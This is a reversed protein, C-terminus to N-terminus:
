TLTARLLSKVKFADNLVSENHPQTAWLKNAVSWALDDKTLSKMIFYRNTPTLNVPTSSSVPSDETAKIVPSEIEKEPLTPINPGATNVTTQSSSLVTSSSNNPTRSPSSKRLRCVLRM